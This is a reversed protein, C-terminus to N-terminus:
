KQIESEEIVFGGFNGYYLYGGARGLIQLVYQARTMDFRM